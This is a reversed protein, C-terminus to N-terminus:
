LWILENIACKPKPVLVSISDTKISHGEPIISKISFTSM